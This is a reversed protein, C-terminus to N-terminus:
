WPHISAKVGLQKAKVRAFEKARQWGTRNYIFRKKDGRRSAKNLDGDKAWLVENYGSSTAHGPVCWVVAKAM